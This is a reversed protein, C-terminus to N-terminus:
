FTVLSVTEVPELNKRGRHRLFPRLKAIDDRAPYDVMRIDIDNITQDAL